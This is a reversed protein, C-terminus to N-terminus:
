FRLRRRFFILDKSKGEEPSCFKQKLVKAIDKKVEVKEATSEIKRDGILTKVDLDGSVVYRTPMLHSYNIHKLFVRVNTRKEIKENDMNSTIKQPPKELGLVLAHAFQRQRTGQDYASLVIAKKGAMRGNLVIVVRGAKFVKNATVM